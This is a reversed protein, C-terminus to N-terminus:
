PYFIEGNPRDKSCTLGDSDYTLGFITSLRPATLSRHTDHWPYTPVVVLPQPNPGVSPRCPHSRLVVDPYRNVKCALELRKALCLVDDILSHADHGFPSQDKKGRPSPSGSNVNDSRFNKEQEGNRKKEQCQKKAVQLQDEGRLYNQAVDELEEDGIESLLHEGGSMSM